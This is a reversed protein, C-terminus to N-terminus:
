TVRMGLEVGDGVENDRGLDCFVRGDVGIVFWFVEVVIGLDVIFVVLVVIRFWLIIMLFLFYGKYVRLGGLVM